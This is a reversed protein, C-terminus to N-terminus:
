DREGSGGPLPAGAVIGVSFRLNHVTGFDFRVDDLDRRSFHFDDVFGALRVDLPSRNIHDALEFRLGFSGEGLPVRVDAGIGFTAAFLVEFGPEDVSVLFPSGNTVIVVKGDPDLALRGPTGGFQVFTPLFLGVPGDLDYAVGGLGFFVYPRFERDTRPGVLSVAGGIDVLWTTVDVESRLLARLDDDAADDAVLLARPGCRSAIAICSRTLGAHVRFGYRGEWYTVALDVSAGPAVALNRALVREVLGGLTGLVVLDSWDSSRLRGLGLSIDLSRPREEDDDDSFWDDQAALPRSTALLSAALIAAILTRPM